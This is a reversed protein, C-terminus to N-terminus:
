TPNSLLPSSPSAGPPSVEPPLKPSDPNSPTLSSPLLLSCPLPPLPLSPRPLLPLPPPPLCSAHSALEQSFRPFLPLVTQGGRGPVSSTSDGVGPGLGREAVTQPRPVALVRLSGRTLGLLLAAARGGHGGMDGAGDGERVHGEGKRRLASTSPTTLRLGWTRTQTEVFLWGTAAASNRRKGEKIQVSTLHLNM